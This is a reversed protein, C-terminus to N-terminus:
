NIITAQGQNDAITANTPSSLNVFFTENSEFTIDGNVYVTLSANTQGAAITVIGNTATYDSPATATGNATAFNVTVNTYSPNSLSVTFTFPTTGSNGENASIDNISIAPQA